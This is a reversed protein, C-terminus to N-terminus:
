ASPSEVPVEYGTEEDMLDKMGTQGDNKVAFNGILPNRLYALVFFGWM